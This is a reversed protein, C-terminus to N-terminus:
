DNENVLYDTIKDYELGLEKIHKKYNLYQNEELTIAVNNGKMIIGDVNTIVFKEALKDCMIQERTKNLKTSLEELKKKIDDQISIVVLYSHIIKPRVSTIKEIAELLPLDNKAYFTTIKQIETVILNQKSTELFLLLRDDDTKLSAIFSAASFGVAFDKTEGWIIANHCQEPLKLLRLFNDIVSKGLPLMLEANERGEEDILRQIYEATQIPSLPRRFGTSANKVSSLLQAYEENNDM